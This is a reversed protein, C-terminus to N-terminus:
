EPQHRADDEVSRAWARNVRDYVKQRERDWQKLSANKEADTLKQSEIVRVEHKRINTLQQRAERAVPGLKALGGADEAIAAAARRDGAKIARDLPVTAAEIDHLRDYALSQDQVMDVSGYLQRVFPARYWDPTDRSIGQSATMDALSLIFTAVGGGYGRVLNNITAPTVSIAGEHYQSGGTVENLSRAAGHAWGGKQGAFVKESDPQKDYGMGEPYMARGFSNVNLVPEMVPDLADPVFALAVGKPNDLSPAVDSVPMWSGVFSKFVRAAGKTPTVGATPNFQNRLVDAATAAMVAFTNYGYPMPIKIYRGHKGVAEGADSGPPLMIILNRDKVEDPIKDWYTAGDDDDDGGLSANALALGFLGAMASGMAIQVDRSSLAQLMRATGQVAPNFFLFFSSLVPTMSGKRNFNVTINKAISAAEAVSKGEERAAKYAAFRTANEVAGNVDEIRELLKRAAGRSRRWTAVAKPWAGETALVTGWKQSEAALEALEKGYGEIDKFDMFGTKGGTTRYESYLASPKGRVEANFAERYADPLNRLMRGAGAAGAVGLMNISGATIDRAGNLVTFVPNLSTYMRSLLRNAWQLAGVVVPLRAEDHLNKLQKLLDEDKVHIFITQGGDKVAVTERQSDNVEDFEVVHEGMPGDVLRRQRKVANVEWLAPDPNDLVFRTFRRLVENKGARMLAKTRDQMIHEIIDTAMSRRGLARFSEKGRIDFGQGAGSARTQAQGPKGRLPVYHEYGKDWAAFEEPTILGNDRLVARTGASWRHLQGTHRELADAVGDARAKALIEDAQANTMGSGGDPFAGNIEAIRANREAAHKAYAYLAVDSLELGDAQVAKVFDQVEGKFDDLQAGVVGWYREEAAYFDNDENVVGGQQRVAAIAQKWRNYRDQIAEIFRGARGFEPLSFGDRQASLSYSPSDDTLGQPGQPDRGDERGGAQRGAEAIRGRVDDPSKHKALYRAESQTLSDFGRGTAARFAPEVDSYTERVQSLLEPSLRLTASYQKGTLAVAGVVTGGNQQIHSALAAFTGGQTLTDDLLLYRGGPVVDGIFEPSAFLRGLGDMATRHARSGQVVDLGVTAGLQNALVKAGALPIKNRGAAEEATVPQVIVNEGVAARVKAVLDPTVLDLALRVAADVDGAKAAVYDPHNATASLPNGVIVDPVRVPEDARLSFGAEEVSAESYAPAPQRSVLVFEQGDRTTGREIARRADRVLQLVDLEGGVSDLRDALGDLGLKRALAVVASKLDALYGKFQTLAGTDNAQALFAILEEVIKARRDVQDKTVTQVYPQLRDWATYGDGVQHKKALKAVGALGNLKDWLQNLTETPKGALALRTGMHGWVEHFLVREAHARDRLNSRVLYVKGRYVVGEVAAAHSGKKKADDLIQQPLATWHDVAVIRDLGFGRWGKLNVDIVDVLDVRSIANEVGRLRGGIGGSVGDRPGRSFLPLGQAAKARIADTIDFGVNTREIPRAAPKRENGPQETVTTKSTVEGGGVKRLVDKAVKPVIQDYFTRMGEGGVKLDIGSLEKTRAYTGASTRENSARQALLKEAAEKGVLDPLEKVPDSVFKSIVEKGNTDWATLTGRSPPGSMEAWAAGGSGNDAFRVRSIQKSLDFLDAAQQGNIFEVRDFGDAAAMAIVRKIALGVWADTKTVFPASPVGPDEAGMRNIELQIEERRASDAPLEDRARILENFKREKQARFGLRKGSQGWDSQIEQVFLVRKGDAGAREDVRIHALVNPQDWHGSRFDAGTDGSREIGVDGGDTDGWGAPAKVKRESITDKAPLTLLVERYNKGGPVTWRDFKSPMVKADLRRLVEAQGEKRAAARINDWTDGDQIAEATPGERGEAWADLWDDMDSGSEEPALTVEQVQVGNADLYSAIDAKSVKGPQMALWERLGTWEMEDAKVAGRKALADLYQQWAGPTGANMPSREVQAALESYFPTDHVAISYMAVNGDEDERTKFEGVLQDFAANIAAREEGHPYPRKWGWPTIIAANEPAHNLFPSKGGKDAIKDEVYGQFARAAMEHPTTWYDQGRGQDLSRADMAFSTPVQRSKESGQQADALMKLRQSYRDMYSRVRDFLGNRNSDFGSRGRVAKYIESIRELSDNTWRSAISARSGPITKWATAIATADGDVMAKAILDFEALQEASAPKNNRKYYKPDKQASLEARVSNLQSALEERAQAVFRDAKQTDEVYREAKTAMTRMVQRYAQQIEERVGSRNIRFGHSALDLEHGQTKLSKTGDAGTQWDSSAKGDQRGLYHDLAHFWEHALAGAGSMKTLNIAVKELEYHARAGTLGQGRAGFALALDGNLSIARPPVGLVEALDLLGDYAENMVLQREDQNNWNGFEVGRFGFTAMFDKGAVDGSRREVGVRETNPPKPLDAEGFTTNTEIIETAHETMYALADDRSGFVQDVVKVRKRDNVDRWIEWGTGEGQRTSVIRHKIAVAVAPLADLAEQETAWTERGVRKPNKAWDLNKHDLIVWRGANPDRNIQGPTGVIQATSFRRAWAPRDDQKARPIRKGGKTATDKRAGGIKEGLDEIKEPPRKPAAPEEATPADFLDGMGSLQQEASQGLQFDDVTADARARTDRQDDARRIAQQEDARAKAEAKTAEGERAAKDRLDQESQAALTLGQDEQGPQDDAQAARTDGRTRDAPRPAADGAGPPAQAQQSAVEPDEARSGERRELAPNGAKALEDAIEQETFGMARMGDAISQQRAEIEIALDPHSSLQEDTLGAEAMIAEREADAEAQAQADEEASAQLQDANANYSEAALRARGVTSLWPSGGLEGHIAEEFVRVHEEEPVGDFYGIEALATVAQDLDMGGTKRFPYAKLKGTSVTHKLEEPTLGFRGGVVDRRIGGLKALAQLLTDREPDLIFQQRGRKSANLRTAEATAASGAGPVRAGQEGAAAQGASGPDAGEQATQPTAPTPQAEQQKPEDQPQQITAQAAPAVEPTAVPQLAQAAPAQKRDAALQPAGAIDGLPEKLRGSKAWAKFAPLPLRTIAGLGQWDADYNSRYLGEAEAEDAAGMVVKHEDLQGTKPDIQDIVFVPGRWDEATGPKVFVDLKDGDAGETGAFYGYHARMETEWPTGDPGVGRRKSGQPNEIRIDMGAVRTRGVKYNGAEKQAQTPEARDNTPSTAAEHAAADVATQVQVPEPGDPEVPPQMEEAAPSDEVPASLGAAEEALAGQQIPTVAPAGLEMAALVDPDIPQKVLGRKELAQAYRSFFGPLKDAPVTEAYQLALDMPKKPIGFMAGLETFMDVAKSRRVSPKDTPMPPEVNFGKSKALDWARLARDRAAMAETEAKAEDSGGSRLYDTASGVGTTGGAMMGGQLVTQAITDAVQNTYDAWTSEPRLGVGGGAFKDVSFQGTTTILEGPIEKQVTNKIWEGFFNALQGTEVGKAAQRIQDLQKTLGLREGIVEFSAFMAARSTAQNVDQGAKRGESYEQGFTQVAMSALPILESAKAAGLVMAPLQQAISSIAGEMNRQLFDGREGIAEEKGRAWQSGKKAAVGANDLEYVDALFEGYGTVSKVIGLAGKALGRGLTRNLGNAPDNPDFTDATGFDFKSEQITDVASLEKGPAVGARAASQAATKAFRPDEGAAVLRQTRKEVRPDFRDGTETMVAEPNNFLGERERALQGLWGNRKSLEARQEPTAADWAANFQERMKQDVPALSPNTSGISKVRAGELVSGSGGGVKQEPQTAPEQQAEAPASGLARMSAESSPALAEGFPRM